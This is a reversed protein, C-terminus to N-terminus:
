TLPASLEFRAGPLSHGSTVRITMGNRAALARVISLGLGSGEGGRSANTGRYFREFILSAETEPIGPGSDEVAIVAQGDDKSIEVKIEVNEGGHLAANELLNTLILQLDEPVARIQIDDSLLSVDATKPKRTLKLEAVAQEAIPTPDIAHATTAEREARAQALLRASLATARDVGEVIHGLRQRNEDSLDEIDIAQCQAKIITLPTRLEHAADDVFKRERSLFQRVRAFLGNLAHVIPQLENPQDEEPLPTLTEPARQRLSDSLSELPSLGKQVFWLAAFLLSGLVVLMPLSASLVMRGVIEDREENEIGSIIVHGDTSHSKYLRWEGWAFPGDKAIEPLELSPHSSHLVTGDAARVVLLFEEEEGEEEVMSEPLRSDDIEANFVRAAAGNLNHLNHITAEEVESFATTFTALVTGVWAVIILPVLRRQISSRISRTQSPQNKSSM